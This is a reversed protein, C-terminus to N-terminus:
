RRCSRSSATSSAPASASAAATSPRTPAARSSAAAASRSGSGTARAGSGRSCTSTRAHPLALRGHRGVARRAHVADAEHDRARGARRRAARGAPRVRRGRRRAPARLDRGRLGPPAALRRRDRQLRRHRRQRQHAARRARAPRLRLPLGRGPAPLRRHRLRPDLRPRVRARAGPGGQPVGDPLGPERGHLDPADGRRGAVALRRGAVDPRRRADRDVLAGPARRRAREVDDLLDHQVLAPPRGAEPGLEARAGQPVRAPHRRARPRDGEAPRDDGVLVARVAPPRLRGPRVRAARARRAARGLLARRSGRPRRLPRARRPAPHSPRRPDDRGGRPPRDLPRPLRVRRGDAAGDARAARTPRRRQTPRARARLEGLGRRPEGDGRVGGADRPHEAPLRRRPRRPRRRAAALGARARAVQERLDAFSLEIPDRTQSHSVIAVQEADDDGGVLHEAFNLRAGPFWVAGPMADSALVTSYPAHAKVEFFEWISSWFGALDDVSWRWLEDYDPFALGRERELWALYRGIETTERVDPPPTWLVGRDDRGSLAM